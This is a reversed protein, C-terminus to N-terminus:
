GKFKVMAEDVAVDRHPRYSKLFNQGILDLFPRIKYLKDYNPEGRKPQHQNDNFHILSLLWSCRKVSMLSSIYNDHLDPASSWYDRYSPFHKVSMYMNLGIFVKIEDDYTPTFPKGIQTGYLNTQFVIHGILSNGFKQCFINYPSKDELDKFFENPGSYLDNSFLEVSPM